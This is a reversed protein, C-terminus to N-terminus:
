PRWWTVAEMGLGTTAAQCMPGRVSRAYARHMRAPITIATHIAAAAEGLAAAGRFLREVDGGVRHREPDDPPPQVM